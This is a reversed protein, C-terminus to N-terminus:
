EVEGDSCFWSAEREERAEMLKGIPPWSNRIQARLEDWTLDSRDVIGRLHHDDRLTRKVHAEFVFQQGNCRYRDLCAYQTSRMDVTVVLHYLNIAGVESQQAHRGRFPKPTSEFFLGLPFREDFLVTGKAGEVVMHVPDTGDVLEFVRSRQENVYKEQGETCPGPLPPNKVTKPPPTVPTPTSGTPPTGGGGTHPPKTGGGGAGTGGPTTSTGGAGGPTGGGTDVQGGSGAAVAAAAAKECDAAAACAVDAAQRANAAAQQAAASEAAAQDAAGCIRAQNQQQDALAHRAAEVRAEANKRAQARLREIAGPSALANWEDELQSASIDGSRYRDYAAQAAANVAHTDGVTVRQGTAADEVWSSDDPSSQARLARDLEAQAAAVAAGASRCAQQARAATAALESAKAEAAAQAARAEECRRRLEACDPQSSIPTITTTTATVPPGPVGPPGFSVPPLPPPEITGGTDDYTLPVRGVDDYSFPVVGGEPQTRIILWVGGGLILIGLGLLLLWLWLLDQSSGGMPVHTVPAETPPTVATSSTTSSSSSSTPPPTTAVTFPNGASYTSNDYSFYPTLTLPSPWPMRGSVMMQTSALPTSYLCEPAGGPGGTPNATGGSGCTIGAVNGATSPDFQLAFVYVPMGQPSTLTATVTSGAISGETGQAGAPPAAQGLATWALAAAFAVRGAGAALARVRARSAM